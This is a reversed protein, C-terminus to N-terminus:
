VFSCSPLQCGQGFMDVLLKQKSMDKIFSVALTLRPIFVVVKLMSLDAAFV